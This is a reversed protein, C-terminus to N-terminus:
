FIAVNEMRLGEFNVWISIKQRFIFWRAVRIPLAGPIKKYM